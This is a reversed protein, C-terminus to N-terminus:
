PAMLTMSLAAIAFTLVKWRTFLYQRYTKSLLVLSERERIALAIAVLCTIAYSAVYLKLGQTILM